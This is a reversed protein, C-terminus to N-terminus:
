RMSGSSNLGAQTVNTFSVLPRTKVAPRRSSAIRRRENPIASRQAHGADPDEGGGLAPVELRQAAGEVLAPPVDHAAVRRAEHPADGILGAHVGAGRELTEVREQHPNHRGAGEILDDEADVRQV